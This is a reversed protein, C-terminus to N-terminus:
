CATPIHNTQACVHMVRWDGENVMYSEFKANARKAPEDRAHRHKCFVLLWPSGRRNDMHKRRWDRWLEGGRARHKAYFTYWHSLAGEQVHLACMYIPKVSCAGREFLRMLGGLELEGGIFICLLTFSPPFSLSLSWSHAMDGVGVCVCASLNPVRYFPWM